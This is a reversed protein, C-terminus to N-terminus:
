WLCHLSCLTIFNRLISQASTDNKKENVYGGGAQEKLRFIDMILSFNLFRVSFLPVKLALQDM